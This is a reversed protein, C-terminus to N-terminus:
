SRSPRTTAPDEGPVRLRAFVPRLDPRLQLSVPVGSLGARPERVPPSLVRLAEARGLADAVTASRTDTKVGTDAWVQSDANLKFIHYEGRVPDWMDAWWFGDNVWLQSEPRKMGTPSGTGSTSGDRYGVDAGAGAPVLCWTLAIAVSTLGLLAARRGTRLRHAMSGSVLTRSPIQPPEPPRSARSGTSLGVTPAPRQPAAGWAGNDPQPRALDVLVSLRLGEEPDLVLAAAERRSTVGLRRYASSLHSKVTSEALYLRGGIEANTYGSIALTLVQKERYTLQPPQLSRYASRPVARLGSALALIAVALM